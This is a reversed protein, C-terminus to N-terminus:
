SAFSENVALNAWDEAGALNGFWHHSLEHAILDRADYDLYGREDTQVRETLITLTTNEMGGATFDRVVAQKYTPWVYPVGTEAEFVAMMAPTEGFIRMADDAYEEEVLYLLPVVSSDARVYADEVAAFDGAVFATLYAPQPHTDLRWVERHLGEGAAESAVHAGNAFVRLSDPVTVALEVTMKDNPYDWTPFWRRSDETQGQTWLQTPRFPDTGDPDIFYLGHGSFSLGSQGETRMPFAAYAIRVVLTDGPGLPRSPTFTLREGDYDFSASVAAQGGAGRVEAAEIEMGVAHLYFSTLGDRLPVLRHEATGLVARRAFDFRVDLKTDLVDVSRDPAVDPTPREPRVYAIRARRVESELSDSVVDPPRDVETVDLVRRTPSCAALAALLVLLTRHM